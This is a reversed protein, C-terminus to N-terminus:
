KSQPNVVSADVTLSNPKDFKQLGLRLVPIIAAPVTSEDPGTVNAGSLGFQFMLGWYGEHIDTQKILIEAVEKLSYDLSKVEPMTM